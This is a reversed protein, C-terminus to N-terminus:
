DVSSYIKDTNLKVYNEAYIKYRLNKSFRVETYFTSVFKLSTRLAILYTSIRIFSQVGKFIGTIGLPWEGLNLKNRVLPMLSLALERKSQL